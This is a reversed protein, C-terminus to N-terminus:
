RQAEYVNDREALVKEWTDDENLINTYLSEIENYDLKQGKKYLIDFYDSVKKVGEFGDQKYQNTFITGHNYSMKEDDIFIFYEGFIGVSPTQNYIKNKTFNSLQNYQLADANTYDTKSIHKFEILSSALKDKNPYDKVVDNIVYPIYDYNNKMKSYDGVLLWRIKLRKANNKQKIVRELLVRLFDFDLADYNAVDIDNSDIYHVVSYYQCQYGFLHEVAITHFERINNNLVFKGDKFCNMSSQLNEISKLMYHRLLGNCEKGRDCKRCQNSNQSCTTYCQKKLYSLTHDMVNDGNPLSYKLFDSRELVDKGLEKSREKYEHFIEFGVWPILLFLVDLVIAIQDDVINYSDNLLHMGLIMALPIVFNEVAFLIWRGIKQRSM